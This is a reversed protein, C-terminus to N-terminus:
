LSAYGQQNIPGTAAIRDNAECVENTFLPPEAELLQAPASGGM